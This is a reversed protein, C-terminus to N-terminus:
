ALPEEGGRAPRIEADSLIVTGDAEVHEVRAGVVDGLMPESPPESGGRLLAQDPLVGRFSPHDSLTVAWGAEVRGAVLGEVPQGADPAADAAGRALGLRRAMRRM